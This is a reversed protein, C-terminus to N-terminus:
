GPGAMSLLTLRELKGLHPSAFLAACTQGNQWTLELERLGSLAACAALASIGAATMRGQSLLFKHLAPWEAAAVAAAEADGGHDHGLALEKLRAALPSRALAAIGAASLRNTSVDLSQLAPFNPSGALDEVGADGVENARLDLRRLGALHPSAALAAAGR